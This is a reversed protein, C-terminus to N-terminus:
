LMRDQTELPSLEGVAGDAEWLGAGGPGGFRWRREESGSRVRGCEPCATGRSVGKLSYFCNLCRTEGGSLGVLLFQKRWFAPRSLTRALLGAVIIDLLQAGLGDPVGVHVAVSVLSSGARGWVYLMFIVLPLASAVVYALWRGWWSKMLM